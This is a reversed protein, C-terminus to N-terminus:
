APRAASNRDPSGPSPALALALAVVREDLGRPRAGAVRLHRARARDEVDAVQARALAVVALGEAELDVPVVSIRRVEAGDAAALDLEEHALATLSGGAGPHHHERTVDVLEVLLEDLAVGDDPHGRRVHRPPQALHVDGIGIAVHHANASADSPTVADGVRPAPAHHHAIRRVLADLKGAAALEPLGPPRAEGSAWCRWRDILPRDLSRRGATLELHFHLALSNGLRFAQQTYRDTSALLTADPVAAHTDGHWHAVVLGTPTGAFVEDQLAAATWRVPEVGIEFGRKGPYVEAGAAAAMLQAGLCVGLCPAGRAFRAAIVSREDALYPHPEYVSMSGGMVVLLDADVDSPETTRFRPVLEFGVAQLAPEFRGLGEHAEHQYIVAKM